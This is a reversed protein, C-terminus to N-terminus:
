INFSLGLLPAHQQAGYVDTDGITGSPIKRAITIKVANAPEFFVPEGVKNLPVKYLKSILVKTIYGKKKIIDYYKRDKFIIDLTLEFPGSNKTRVVKAIETINKKM